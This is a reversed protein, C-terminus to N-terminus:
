AAHDPHAQLMAEFERRALPSATRRHRGTFGNVAARWEGLSMSWFIEPALRM